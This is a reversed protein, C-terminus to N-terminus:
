AFYGTVTVSLSARNYNFVCFTGDAALPVVVTNSRPVGNDLNANSANPRPQDCPYATLFGPEFGFSEITATVATANSPIPGVSRARIVQEGRQNMVTSSPEDRSGARVTPLVLEFDGTPTYAMPAAPGTWASIDVIVHTDAYSFVCLSRDAALATIVTNPITEGRAYNLSSTDPRGRDCPYVTLYGPGLPETTTLTAIVGTAGAPTAAQTSVVLTEGAKVRRAARGAANERTDVVRVPAIPQVGDASSPSFWGNVDAVIFTPFDSKLCVSRSPGLPVVVANAINTNNLASLDFAGGIHQECGAASIDAWGQSQTSTLNLVVATADAPVVSALNLRTPRSWPIRGSTGGLGSRTDMVRIPTVTTLRGAPRATDGIALSPGVKEGIWGLSNDVRVLLKADSSPVNCSRGGQVTAAVRPGDAAQVLFPGGSDGFCSSGRSAEGYLLTQDFFGRSEVDIRQSEADVIGQVGVHAIQPYSARPDSSRPVAVTSGYGVVIGDRGPAALASETPGLVRVPVAIAPRSLRLLGIDYFASGGTALYGPHHHIESVSITETIQSGSGLSVESLGVLATQGNSDDVVCHAATLVWEPAILSGTCGASGDPYELSVRALFPFEGNNSQRGNVVHRDSAARDDNANPVAASAATATATLAAVAVLSAPLVFRRSWRM